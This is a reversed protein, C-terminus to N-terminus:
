QNQREPSDQNIYSTEPLLKQVRGRMIESYDEHAAMKFLCSLGMYTSQVFRPVRAHRTLM